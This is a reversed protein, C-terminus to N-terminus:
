GPRHHDAGSALPRVRATSAPKQKGQRQHGGTAGVGLAVRLEGALHLVLDVSIEGRLSSLHGQISSIEGNLSSEHGRASSIQGRMSSVEGRLSSIQGQLSSRQGHISSIEGRLSDYGLVEEFFKVLYMVTDAENASRERAERFATAFRDLKGATQKDIGM